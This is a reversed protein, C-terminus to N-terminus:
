IFITKGTNKLFLVYETNNNNKLNIVDRKLAREILFGNQKALNEYNKKMDKYVGIVLIFNQNLKLIRSIEKFYADIEQWYIKETINKQEFKRGVM